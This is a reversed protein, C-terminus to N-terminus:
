SRDGWPTRSMHVGCRAYREPPLSRYRWKTRSHRPGTKGAPFLAGEQYAPALRSPARRDNCHLRGIWDVQGSSNRDRYQCCVNGSCCHDSECCFFCDHYASFGTSVKRYNDPFITDISSGASFTVGTKFGASYRYLNVRILLRPEM